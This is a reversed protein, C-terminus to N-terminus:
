KNSNRLTNLLKKGPSSNRYSGMQNLQRILGRAVIQIKCNLPHLGVFQFYKSNAGYIHPCEVINGMKKQAKNKKKKKKANQAKNLYVKFRRDSTIVDCVVLRRALSPQYPM